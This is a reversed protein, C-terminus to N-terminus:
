DVILAALEENIYAYSMQNVHVCARACECACVCTWVCVIMCESVCVCEYVGGVCLCACVSVNLYKIVNVFIYVNNLYTFISGCLYIFSYIFVCARALVCM